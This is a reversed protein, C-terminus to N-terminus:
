RAVAHLLDGEGALRNVLWSAPIMLDCLAIATRLKLGHQFVFRGALVYQISAPLAISSTTTCTAIQTFGAAALTRQLSAANFHIRHRPVELNFWCEGFSARQWCDFNPASVIAIGGERLARRVRRLDAVPDTVHELSHRFVVADYTGPELEIEALIGNRADVGRERALACAEPSPEVGVVSWGRRVLWSGLEGNGCGVDLLRGPALEALSRLPMSRLAQAALLRQVGASVLALAGTLPPSHAGYSAPYFSALQADEVAPLTVGLACGECRSVSFRGPVGWMLDHARLLAVGLAGGCAPCRAQREGGSSADDSEAAPRRDDAVAMRADYAARM